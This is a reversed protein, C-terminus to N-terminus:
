KFLEDLPRKGTPKIAAIEADRRMREQDALAIDRQVESKGRSYALRYTFWLGGGIVILAGVLVAITTWPM